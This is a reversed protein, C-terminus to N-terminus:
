RPARTSPATRPILAAKQEDTLCEAFQKDFEEIKTLWAKQQEDRSSQLMAEVLKTRETNLQDEIEKLKQTQEDTLKARMLVFDQRLRVITGGENQEANTLVKVDEDIQEQILEARRQEWIQQQEITLIELAQKDFEALRAELKAKSEPGAANFGLENMMRGRRNSLQGLESQQSSTLQLRRPLEVENRRAETLLSPTRPLEIAEGRIGRGTFQRGGRNGISATTAPSSKGPSATARREWANLLAEPINVTWDNVEGARAVLTIVRPDPNEEVRGNKWEVKTDDRDHLMNRNWAPDDPTM